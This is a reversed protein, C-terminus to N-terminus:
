DRPILGDFIVNAAEVAHRHVAAPDSPDAVDGLRAALEPLGLPGAAGHTMLFYLLSVSDSAVQGNARLRALFDAGFDRVPSIYADFLYDLRPGPATAERTIIRLLAPRAANAEIFRVVVARLRALDDTQEDDNLVDALAAALAGFGRDVAAFWLQEKTGIRQPILNHSVGLDRALGRVSTGEYGRAAFSDLAADLLAETTITSPDDATPRGRARAASRNKTM